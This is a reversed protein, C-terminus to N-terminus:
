LVNVGDLSVEGSEIIDPPKLLRMMFLAITSKGSGSEGILGYREGAELNFCHKLFLIWTLFV